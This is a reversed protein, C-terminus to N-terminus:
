LKQRPHLVFGLPSFASLTYCLSAACAFIPAELLCTMSTSVSLVLDSSCICAAACPRFSQAPCVGYVAPIIHMSHLRCIVSLICALVGAAFGGWAHMGLWPHQSFCMCVDGELFLGSGGCDAVLM